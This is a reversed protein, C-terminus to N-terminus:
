PEPNAEPPIVNKLEVEVRRNLARGEVTQDTTKPRSEGYGVAEVRNAEVGLSILVQRVTEAREQSLKLNAGADGVDDTHGKILASIAPYRNLYEALEEIAQLSYPLLRASNTYFQVNPLLIADAQTIITTDSLEKIQRENEIYITDHVVRPNPPPTVPSNGSKNCSDWAFLLGLLLALLSLLGCGPLGCGPLACGTNGLGLSLCGSRNGAVLSGLQPSVPNLIKSFPGYKNRSSLNAEKQVFAEIKKAKEVPELELVKCYGRGELKGHYKGEHFALFTWGEYPKGWTQSPFEAYMESVMERHPEGSIPEFEVMEEAKHWAHPHILGPTEDPKDWRLGPRNQNPLRLTESSHRGELAQVYEEESIEIPHRLYFRPKLEIERTPVNQVSHSGGSEFQSRLQGKFYRFRANSM